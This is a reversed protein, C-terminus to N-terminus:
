GSIAKLELLFQKFKYLSETLQMTALLTKRNDKLYQKAGQLTFKRRRILHYILKLNKIDEPRFFRDGKRNKRPQLIDFETEWLRLQSQTVGFWEAVIRMPYYQKQYLVDDEPIEILVSEEDMDKFSKRGRKKNPLLLMTDIKEQKQRQTDAFPNTDSTHNIENIETEEFDGASFEEPEDAKNSGSLAANKDAVSFDERNDSEKAHEFLFLQQPMPTFILYSNNPNLYFIM